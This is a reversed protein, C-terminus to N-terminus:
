KETFLWSSSWSRERGQVEESCNCICRGLHKLAPLVEKGKGGGGKEGVASALWRHVAAFSGSLSALNAQLDMYGELSPTCEKHRTGAGKNQM